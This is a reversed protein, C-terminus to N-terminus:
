KSLLFACLCTSHATRQTSINQCTFSFTSRCCSTPIHPFFTMNREKLIRQVFATSIAQCQTDWTMTINFAHRTNLFRAFTKFLRTRTARIYTCRTHRQTTHIQRLILRWQQCHKNHSCSQNTYSNPSNWVPALVRRSYEGALRRSYKCALVRPSDVTWMSALSNWHRSM